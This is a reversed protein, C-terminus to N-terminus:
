HRRMAMITLDDSRPSGNTFTSLDGLCAHVLEEPILDHREGALRALRESGYEVGQNNRAETVGDTYFLLTEGQALQIRAIDYTSTYFLGLPLGSAELKAVEGSRLLLPPPHGTGM